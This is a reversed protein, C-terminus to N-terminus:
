CNVLRFIICEFLVQVCQLLSYIYIYVYSIDCLKIAGIYVYLLWKWETWDAKLNQRKRENVDSYKHKNKDEVHNPNLIDNFYVLTVAFVNVECFCLHM